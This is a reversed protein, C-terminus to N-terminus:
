DGVAGAACENCLYRVKLEYSDVSDGCIDKLTESFLPIDFDKIRHCGTCFLHGHPIFSSDYRDSADEGTIRRIIRERELSHLNNYVTARSIGPLRKKALEFIEEATYHCKEARIVELIVSRQKTMLVVGKQSYLGYESFTSVSSHIEQIM